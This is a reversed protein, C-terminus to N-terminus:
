SINNTPASGMLGSANQVKAKSTIEPLKQLFDLAM